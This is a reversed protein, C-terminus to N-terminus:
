LRRCAWVVRGIIAFDNGELDAASRDFSEYEKNRSRVRIVGGPLRQLEKVLVAGDMRLVYIADCQATTDRRDIMIVDGPRLDPEMSRGQVFLLCVDRPSANLESRLWEERFALLDTVHEEDVLEGPGASARVDYLPLYVYGTRPKELSYHASATTEKPYEAGFAAELGDYDLQREFAAQQLRSAASRDVSSRASVFEVAALTAKRVRDLADVLAPANPSAELRAQLLRSLDWGTTKAFVALFEPDALVREHEYAALTNKNVKLKEALAPISQNLESRIQRLLDGLPKPRTM